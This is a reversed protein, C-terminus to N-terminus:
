APKIGLNRRAGIVGFFILFAYLGLFLFARGWTELEPITTESTDDPAYLIDIRDGRSVKAMFSRPVQIEGRITQGDPTKFRYALFSQYQRSDSPDQARWTKEVVATAQQGSIRLPLHDAIDLLSMFMAYGAWLAAIGFGLGAVLRGGSTEADVIEDQPLGNRIRRYLGRLGLIVLVLGGLFFLIGIAFVDWAALYDLDRTPNFGEANSFLSEQRKITSDIIYLYIFPGVGRVILVAGIATCALNVFITILYRLVPM